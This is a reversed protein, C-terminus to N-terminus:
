KCPNFPWHYLNINKFPKDAQSWNYLTCLQKYKIAIHLLIMQRVKKTHTLLCPM